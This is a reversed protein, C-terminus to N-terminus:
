RKSKIMVLGRKIALCILLIVIDLLVRLVRETGPIVNWFSSFYEDFHHICLLLLSNKGIFALPKAVATHEISQCFQIVAISAMIAILVCVMSYPYQRLAMEIYIGRDVTLYIWVFFSIVGIKTWEFSEMDVKDKLFHGCEMFLMIVPIMDMGQPLRCKTGIWIGAFALMLLFIARNRKIYILCLRYALKGWFLAILFWVVGVKPMQLKKSFLIMEYENGNGWMIRKVNDWLAYFFKENEFFISYGADIMRVLFVPLILRRFDKKMASPIEQGSIQKITFGALIFFLPMHFSFILNRTRSGFEVTHGIITCIIAIGKAIDLWQLRMQKKDSIIM